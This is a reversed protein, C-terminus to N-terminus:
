VLYNFDLLLENSSVEKAHPCEDNFGSSTSSDGLHTAPPPPVEWMEVSSDNSSTPPATCHHSSSGVEEHCSPPRATRSIPSTFWGYRDQAQRKALESHKTVM